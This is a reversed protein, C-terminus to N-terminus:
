YSYISPKHVYCVENDQPETGIKFIETYVSEPPCFETALFGSAKCVQRTTLGDPVVDFEHEPVGELAEKMFNTWIPLAIM